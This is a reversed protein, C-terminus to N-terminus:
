LQLHLGKVGTTAASLLQSLFTIGKVPPSIVLSQNWVMIMGSSPSVHGLAQLSLFKVDWSNLDRKKFFFFNKDFFLIYKSQLVWKRSYLLTFWSHTFTAWNVGVRQLGHVICDLSNELGSYQLPYGNGEGPSSGSGPISGLDGVNCASGKGASSGPFWSHTYM